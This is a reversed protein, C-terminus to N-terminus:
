RRGRRSVRRSSAGACAARRGRDLPRARRVRRPVLARVVGDADAVLTMPAADVHYREHLTRSRSSSSRPSRSTTRNSRRRGQRLPGACSDCTASTFLVVLWPADPAPSTPATSSRRARVGPTQTPADHRRRRELWWALRPSCRSCCSRRSSSSCTLAEERGHAVTVVAVTLPDPRRVCTGRACGHPADGDVVISREAFSRTPTPTRSSRRDRRRGAGARARRGRRGDGGPGAPGHDDQLARPHTSRATTCSAVDVSAPAASPNFLSLTTSREGSSGAAPSRGRAPRSTGGPSTVTGVPRRARQRVAHADAGRDRREAGVARRPQLARRGPRQHVGEDRRRGRVAGLHVWVVNDQPSPSARRPSRRAEVSRPPRRCTSRRTTTASTRSRSSRTTSGARAAGGAFTWDTSAVPSASRSRSGPRGPRRGHVRADAGRRGLRRRRRGRGRRPGTAGRHRPDAVVERSRRAIDLGQLADPQLVGSSTRLTVDVKADSAYPNDICSGSSCAARRTAPRSTGTRRRSRDRVADVRPRARGRDGGRRAGPRRVDRHHARRAGRASRPDEDVVSNAPVSFTVHTAKGKDALDTVVVDAAADGINAFTM